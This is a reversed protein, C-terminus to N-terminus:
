IIQPILSIDKTYRNLMKTHIIPVIIYCFTPIQTPHFLHLWCINLKINELTENKISEESSQFSFADITTKKKHESTYSERGKGQLLILVLCNNM